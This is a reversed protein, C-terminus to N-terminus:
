DAPITEDIFAVAETSSIRMIRIQAYNLGGIVVNQGDPEQLDIGTGAVITTTTATTASNNGFVVDIFDGNATLCDAFLTTTAPLTMNIVASPTIGIYSNDCLDAAVLTFSASPTTTGSYVSGGQITKALNTEGSVTVDDTVVLDDSITVDASTLTTQSELEYVNVNCLQTTPESGDCIGGVATVAGLYRETELQFIREELKEIDTKGVEIEEITEDEVGFFYNNIVDANVALTSCFLVAIVIIALSKLSKLRKFLM